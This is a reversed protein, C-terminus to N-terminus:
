CAILVNAVGKLAKFSTSVSFYYREQFPGSERRCKRTSSHFPFFSSLVFRNRDAFRGTCIASCSKAASACDARALPLFALSVVGEVIGGFRQAPLPIVGCIMRGRGATALFRAFIRVDDGDHHLEVALRLHRHPQRHQHPGGPYDHQWARMAAAACSRSLLSTSPSESTKGGCTLCTSSAIPRPAFAAAVAKRLHRGHGPHIPRARCRGWTANTRRTNSWRALSDTKESM